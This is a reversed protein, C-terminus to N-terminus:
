FRPQRMQQYEAAEKQLVRLQEHLAEIRTEIEAARAACDAREKEIAGLREQGRALVCRARLSRAHQEVVEAIPVGMEIRAFFDNTAAQEAEAEGLDHRILGARWDIEILAEHTDARQARLQVLQNQKKSIQDDYIM